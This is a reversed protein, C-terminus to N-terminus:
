NEEFIQIFEEESDFEDNLAYIIEDIVDEFPACIDYENEMLWVMMEEPDIMYDVNTDAEGFPYYFEFV